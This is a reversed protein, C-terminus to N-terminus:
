NANAFIENLIYDIATKITAKEWTGIEIVTYNTGIIIKESYFDLGIFFSIYDTVYEAFSDEKDKLPQYFKLKNFIDPHITKLKYYLPLGFGNYRTELTKFSELEHYYM